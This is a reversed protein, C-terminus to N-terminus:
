SAKKITRRFAHRKRGPAYDPLVAFEEYDMSRYFEPAQWSQTWVEIGKLGAEVAYKEIKYMLSKGVGKRRHAEDVWFLDIHLWRLYIKGVASGIIKGQETAFLGFPEFIVKEGIAEESLERLRQAIYMEEQATAPRLEYAIQSM